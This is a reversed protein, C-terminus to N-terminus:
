AQPKHSAAQPEQSRKYYAVLEGFLVKTVAALPVAFIVGLFGLLQGFILVSLIVVVPNLGVNRGIIRPTLFTGDLTIGFAFVLVVGIPRLLGTYPVLSLLLAPTLGVALGLYPVVNALGTAVGILIAFDVGCILLGISYVVAMSSCVLIQGRFFARLDRDIARAIRLIDEKYQWPLMGEIWGGLAPLDVLIYAMVVFFLVFSFSSFVFGLLVRVLTGVGRLV